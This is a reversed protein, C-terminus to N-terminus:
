IMDSLAAELRRRSPEYRNAFQGALMATGGLRCADITDHIDALKM